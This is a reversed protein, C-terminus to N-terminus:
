YNRDAGQSPLSSGGRSMPSRPTTKHDPARALPPPPELTLILFSKNEAVSFPSALCKPSMWTYQMRLRQVIKLVPVRQNKVSYRQTARLQPVGQEQRSAATVPQLHRFSQSLACDAWQVQEKKCFAQAPDGKSSDGGRVILAGKFAGRSNDRM